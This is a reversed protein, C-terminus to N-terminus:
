TSHTCVSFVCDRGELRIPFLFWALLCICNLPSGPVSTACPVSSQQQEEPGGSWESWWCMHHGTGRVRWEWSHEASFGLRSGYRILTSLFVEWGIPLCPGTSRLSFDGSYKCWILIPNSLSRSYCQCIYVSGQPPESPLSDAQLAPSRPEIGPDPLDGPSPFPLGSWYEQRSFGM